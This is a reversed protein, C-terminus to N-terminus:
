KKGGHIMNQTYINYIYKYKYTIDILSTPKNMICISNMKM